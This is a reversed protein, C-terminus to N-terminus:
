YNYSDYTFSPGQGAMQDLVKSVYGAVDADAVKWRVVFGHELLTRYKPRSGEEKILSFTFFYSM